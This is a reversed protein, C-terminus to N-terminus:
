SQCGFIVPSWEWMGIIIWIASPLTFPMSQDALVGGGREVAAQLALRQALELPQHDLVDELGLGGGEPVLRGLHLAALDLGLVDLGLDEEEGGGVIASISPVKVLVWRSSWHWSFAASGGPSQRESVQNVWWSARRSFFSYALLLSGRSWPKM